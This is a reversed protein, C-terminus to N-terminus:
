RGPLLTVNAAPVELWTQTELTLCLLRDAGPAGGGGADRTYAAMVQAEISPTNGASPGNLDVAVVSGIIGSAAGTGIQDLQAHPIGSQLVGNNWLVEAPDAADTVQGFLPPQYQRDTTINAGIVPLAVLSGVLIPM